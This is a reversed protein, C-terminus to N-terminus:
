VTRSSVASTHDDTLGEIQIKRLESLGPWSLASVLGGTAKHIRVALDVSIHPRGGCLRSITAQKVGVERAFDSQSIGNQQLYQALKM